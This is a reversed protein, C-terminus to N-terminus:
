KVTQTLIWTTDCDSREHLVGLFFLMGGGLEWAIGCEM